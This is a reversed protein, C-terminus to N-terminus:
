GNSSDSSNRKKSRRVTPALDRQQRNLADQRRALERIKDSRIKSRRRKGSKLPPPRRTTPRTRKRLEQDFLSSLDAESRNMGGGGGGQQQRAVQRRKNEAEAKLLQNLADMEHPLAASTGLKDLEGAARGMSEIAKGIPDSGGPAQGGVGRRRRPDASRGMQGGAEEARKKLDAQAKAVARIDEASKADRARRSRADLKWTAVIIDKQADALGQLGRDGGGGM